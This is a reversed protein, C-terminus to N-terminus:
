SFKGVQTGILMKYNPVEERSKKQLPIYFVEERSEPWWPPHSGVFTIAM